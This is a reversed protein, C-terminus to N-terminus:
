YVPRETTSTLQRRKQENIAELCDVLGLQKIFEAHKTKDLAKILSDAAQENTSIQTVEVNGNAIEQQIYRYRLDIHKTRGDNIATESRKTINISPKNDEYITLLRLKGNYRCEELLRILYNAEKAVLSLQIYEAEISLQVILTQRSSKYFLPGNAFM